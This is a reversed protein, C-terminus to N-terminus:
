GTVSDRKSLLYKIHTFFLALRLALALFALLPLRSQGQLNQMSDPFRSKSHELDSDTSYGGCQQDAHDTYQHKDANSAGIQHLIDNGIGSHIQIIVIQILSGKHIILIRLSLDLFQLLYVGGRVTLPSDILLDGLIQDIRSDGDLVLTKVLMLTHVPDCRHLGAGIHEKAATGLKATGGNGLLQDLIQRFFVTDSHLPLNQLDEPGLLELATVIFIHDHFPIEIGDIHALATVANLGSSGGVETFLQLIQCSRFTGTQDANGVIRRDEIRIGFRKLVVSFHHGTRLPVTDALLIGEPDHFLFAPDGLFGIVRGNGLLHDEFIADILHINGVFALVIVTIIGALHAAIQKNVTRIVTRFAAGSQNGLTVIHIGPKHFGDEVIHGLCQGLEVAPFPIVLGTLGAHIQDLPAAVM